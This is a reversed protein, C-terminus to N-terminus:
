ELSLEQMLRVGELMKMLTVWGDWLAKLGVIGTRKSDHWGGLKALAYYAWHVTPPDNPLAKKEVKKWMLRWETASFYHICSQESSDTTIIEKLQMLRVAIFALIVAMREMNERTQMRLKEVQTGGSKWVKHFDEIRWRLEYYRILKRAEQINTLSETTLLLWNLPTVEAPSNSEKGVLLNLQLPQGSLLGLVMMEINTYAIDVHAKRAKRGGKQPINVEYSGQPELSKAVKYLRDEHSALRRNQSARVLFRGNREIQYAFYEFMDAERDCVHIINNYESPM